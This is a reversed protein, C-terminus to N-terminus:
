DTSTWNIYQGVWELNTHLMDDIGYPWLPELPPYMHTRYESLFFVAAAVSETFVMRCKITTHKYEM